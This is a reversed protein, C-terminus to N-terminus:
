RAVRLGMEQWWSLEICGDGWYLGDVYISGCVVDNGPRLPLAAAAGVDGKPLVNALGHAAVAERLRVVDILSGQTIQLSVERDGPEIMGHRSLTGLPDILTQVLLSPDEKIWAQFRRAKEERYGDIVTRRRDGADATHDPAGDSPKTAAM